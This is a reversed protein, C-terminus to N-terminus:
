DDAGWEVGIFGNLSYSRIRKASVNTNGGTFNNVDGITPDLPSQYIRLDGIYPYAAGDKLASQLEVKQGGIDVIRDYGSADQGYAAIWMRQTQEQTSNDEPDSWIHPYLRPHLLRGKNDVSHSWTATGIVRHNAMDKTSKARQLLSGAVVVTLGVLISLIAIVILLEILTFGRKSFDRM